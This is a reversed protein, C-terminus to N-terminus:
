KVRHKKGKDKKQRWGGVELGRMASWDELGGQPRDELLAIGRIAKRDKTDEQDFVQWLNRNTTVDPEHYPHPQRCGTSIDEIPKLHNFRNARHAISWATNADGPM